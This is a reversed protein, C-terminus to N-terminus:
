SAAHWAWQHLYRALRHGHRSVACGISGHPREAHHRELVDQRWAAFTDEPPSGNVVFGVVATAGNPTALLRACVTDGPQAPAGSVSALATLDVPGDPSWVTELDILDRVRWGDDNHETIRWLGMPTRLICSLEQRNRLKKQAGNNLFRRVPSTPEPGTCSLGCLAVAHILLQRHAPLAADMVDSWPGLVEDPGDDGLAPQIDCGINLLDECRLWQARPTPPIPQGHHPPRRFWPVTEEDTM